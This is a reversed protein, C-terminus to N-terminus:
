FHTALWTSASTSGIPVRGGLRRSPYRTTPASSLWTTATRRSSQKRSSTIRVSRPTRHSGNRTYGHQDPTITAGNRTYAKIVATYAMNTHIEYNQEAFCYQFVVKGFSEALTKNADHREGFYGNVLDAVQTLTLISKWRPIESETLLIQRPDMAIRFELTEMAEESMVQSIDLTNGMVNAQQFFRQTIIGYDLSFIPKQHQLTRQMNTFVNASDKESFFSSELNM